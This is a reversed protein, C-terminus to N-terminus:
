NPESVTLDKEIEIMLVPLDGLLEDEELYEEDLDRHEDQPVRLEGFKVLLENLRNKRLGEHTTLFSELPAHNGQQIAQYISPIEFKADLLEATTPQDATYEPLPMGLRRLADYHLRLCCEDKRENM